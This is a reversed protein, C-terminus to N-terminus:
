DGAKSPDCSALNDAYQAPTSAVSFVKCFNNTIDVTARPYPFAANGMQIRAEVRRFLDNARGTSDVAPQVGDLPVVDDAGDLLEVQFHTGVYLSTLRLYGTRNTIMGPLDLTAQCAYGSLPFTSECRVPQSALGGSTRRADLGFTASGVTTDPYLYITRAHDDSDFGSGPISGESYQM